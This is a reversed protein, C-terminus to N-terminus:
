CSNCPPSTLHLITTPVNVVLCSSCLLLNWAWVAGTYCIGSSGRSDLQHLGSVLELMNACHPERCYGATGYYLHYHLLSHSSATDSLLSFRHFLCM